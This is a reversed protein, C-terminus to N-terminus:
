CSQPPMEWVSFSMIPKEVGLSFLLFGLMVYVM